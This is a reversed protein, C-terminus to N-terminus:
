PNFKLCRREGIHSYDYVTVGCVYMQVKDGMGPRPTFVQPFMLTHCFAAPEATAYVPTFTLHGEAGHWHHQCVVRTHQALPFLGANLVSDHAYLATAAWGVAESDVYWLRASMGRIAHLLLRFLVLRQLQAGM